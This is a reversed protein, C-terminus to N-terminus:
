LLYIAADKAALQAVVFAGAVRDVDVRRLDHRFSTRGATRCFEGDHIGGSPVLISCRTM